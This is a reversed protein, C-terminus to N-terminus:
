QNSVDTGLNGDRVSGKLDRAPWKKTGVLNSWGHRRFPNLQLTMSPMMPDTISRWMKRSLDRAGAVQNHHLNLAPAPFMNVM